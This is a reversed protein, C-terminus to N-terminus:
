DKLAVSIDKNAIPAAVTHEVIQWGAVMHRIQELLRAVILLREGLSLLVAARDSLPVALDPQRYM